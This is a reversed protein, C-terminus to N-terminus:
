SLNALLNGFDDVLLNGSDDILNPRSEISPFISDDVRVTIASGLIDEDAILGSSFRVLSYSDLLRTNTAFRIGLTKLPIFGGVGQSFRIVNRGDDASTIDLRLIYPAFNLDSILWVSLPNRLSTDLARAEAITLVTDSWRKYTSLLDSLTQPFVNITGEVDHRIRTILNNPATYEYRFAFQYTNPQLVGGELESISPKGPKFLGFDAGLISSGSGIYEVQRFDELNLIEFTQTASSDSTILTQKEWLTSGQLLYGRTPPNNWDALPSGAIAPDSYDGRINARNNPNVPHVLTITLGGTANLIFPDSFESPDTYGAETSFTCRIVESSLLVAPAVSTRVTGGTAGNLIVVQNPTNAPASNFIGAQAPADFFFGGAIAKGSLIKNPLVLLQNGEAFVADGTLPAIDSPLGLRGLRDFSIGLTDGEDFGAGTLATLDAELWIDFVAAYGAPLDLPLSLLNYQPHWTQTVGVSEMGTDISRTLLRYYGILQFKFLGAFVNGWVKGTESVTSGNIAIRLNFNGGMTIGEEESEAGILWYRIPQTTIPSANNDISLPPIILDAGLEQDAGRAEKTSNLFTNATDFYHEIWIDTEANYRYLKNDSDIFRLQGNIQDSGSPLNNADAVNLNNTELHAEESLTLEIPLEIMSIQDSLKYDVIAIQVADEINGTDEASIVFAWVDEGERILSDPLTVIVSDGTEYTISKGVSLLNRGVRNQLQLYVTKTGAQLNGTGEERSVGWDTNTLQLSFSALQSRM